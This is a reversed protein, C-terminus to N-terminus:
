FCKLHRWRGGDRCLACRVDGLGGDFSALQTEQSAATRPIVVNRVLWLFCYLFNLHRSWRDLNCRHGYPFNNGHARTAFSAFLNAKIVGTAAAFTPCRALASDRCNPKKEERKPKKSKASFQYTPISWLMECLNWGHKVWTPRLFPGISFHRVANWLNWGHKVWTPGLFPCISFHRAANWMNWGHKERQIPWFLHRVLILLSPRYFHRVANWWVNIVM